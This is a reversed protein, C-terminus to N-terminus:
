AQHIYYNATQQPSESHFSFGLKEKKAFYMANDAHHLLTESDTGNKPYIAIGISTGLTIEDGKLSYPMRLIKQIKEAVLVAADADTEPLILAFEDGGLRAAIDSDRVTSLLRRALEKLIEDGAAHGLSDNIFKFRDLDLYFLSFSLKTRNAMNLTQQLRDTFLRRNALRTLEDYYSLWILREDAQKRITIDHVIGDVGICNGYENYVPSDTVELWHPVHRIDYIELEYPPNPVGKACLETCADIKLNVPNDTLYNRFNTMFEEPTYGLINTISPSVYTFIGNSDHQYFFYENRLNEVLSGFRNESSNLEATRKLVLHELESQLAKLNNNAIQVENKSQNIKQNQRRVQFIWLLLFVLVIFFGGLIKGLLLYDISPESKPVWKAFVNQIEGESLSDLGKQLIAVLIPWDKRVAMSENASNRDYFAAFKLDDLFFKTQLYNATAMFTITADAKGASVANLGELMTDVFYPKVSPFEEIVSDGYQYGKVIAIKKGALDTREKITDNGKKTMIVLSKTLYPQTFNFWLRREPRNVMTAVIDVKRAAAIKYLENWSTNQYIEFKVGLLRSLANVTEIAIGELHGSDNIFSYPPLSGDFAIRINKHSALWAQEKATLQVTRDAKNETAPTGHPDGGFTGSLLFICLFLSLIYPM